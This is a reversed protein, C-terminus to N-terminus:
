LGDTFSSSYSVLGRIVHEYMESIQVGKHTGSFDLTTSPGLYNRSCKAAIIGALDYACTVIGPNKLLHRKINELVDTREYRDPHGIKGPNSGVKPFCSIVIDPDGPEGKLVWLWLQDIMGVINVPLKKNTQFLSAVQNINQTDADASHYHYYQGLTRRGHPSHHSNHLYERTLEEDETTALSIHDKPSFLDGNSQQEMRNFDWHLYPVFLVLDQSSAKLQPTDGQSSVDLKGFMQCHPHMFRAYAKGSAGLHQRRVWREATLIQYAKTPNGYLRVMLLEVWRMNNAPLHIWRISDGTNTPPLTPESLLEEVPILYFDPVTTDEFLVVTAISRGDLEGEIDKLREALPGEEDARSLMDKITVDESALQYPDAGPIGLLRIDAGANLLSAVVESHLNKIGFYLATEGHFDRSNRDAGEQLLLAVADVRGCAAARCLPVSLETEPQLICGSKLLIELCPLIGDAAAIRLWYSVFDPKINGDHSSDLLQIAKNLLVQMVEINGNHYASTIPCPELLVNTNKPYVKQVLESAIKEKVGSRNMLAEVAAKRGAGAAWWLPSRHKYDKLWTANNDLLFNVMTINETAAAWSLITRGTADVDNVDVGEMALLKKTADMWGHEAAWFVATSGLDSNPFESSCHLIAVSPMYIRWQSQLVDGRIDFKPHVLMVVHSIRGRQRATKMYWHVAGNTTIQPKYDTVHNHPGSHLLGTATIIEHLRPKLIGSEMRSEDLSIDQISVDPHIQLVILFRSESQDASFQPYIQIESEGFMQRLFETQWFNSIM